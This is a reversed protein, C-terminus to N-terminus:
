IAQPNLPILQDLNSFRGYKNRYAIIRSAYAPGIGPLQQLLTSDATNINIPFVNTETQEREILEIKSGIKDPQQWLGRGVSRAQHEYEGFHAATDPPLYSDRYYTGIGDQLLQKNLFTSDRGNDVKVYANLTKYYPHVRPKEGSVGTLRVKNGSLKKHLYKGAEKAFYDASDIEHYFRPLEVGLPWVGYTFGPVIEINFRGSDETKEVKYM